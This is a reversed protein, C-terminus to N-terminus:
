TLPPSSGISRASSLARESGSDGAPACYGAVEELAAAFDIAIQRWSFRECVASRAQHGRRARERPQTVAETLAAALADEDDPATLWGTQGDDIITAPGLARPAVAPLGCAMGEVLVQGFQDRESAMVVADAAAFLEPLEEHQYWGALFVDDAGLRAALEAPHEGEWEGPHGGVIVLGCPARVDQKVKAYAGILRDLRKVATFRGVYMLVTGSSLQAVQEDRYGVVGASTDPLVGRPQELLVRRWVAARDVERPRFVDTDVGNPLTVLRQPEVGLVHAARSAGAPAVVLRECRQAWGRMRDAWREAYRWGPPAGAAIRELMLLESGHLQGLVPVGAAVRSAAENLPTLHHLHIVDAKAAGARELERSWARVQREFVLDDLASFVQDPAGPRDEYSPHLPATGPPGEFSLPQASALAQDFDVAHVDGYFVRADGHPGLDRRSGAVLTVPWGLARLGRVLARTTHASGGRPSFM